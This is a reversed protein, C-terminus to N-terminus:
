KAGEVLLREVVRGHTLYSARMFRGHSDTGLADPKDMEMIFSSMANRLTSVETNTLTRGNITVVAELHINM